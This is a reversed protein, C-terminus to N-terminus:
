ESSRGSTTASACLSERRRRLPQGSDSRCIESANASAPCTLTLPDANVAVDTFRISACHRRHPGAGHGSTGKGNPAPGKIARAPRAPERRAEIEQYDGYRMRASSMGSFLTGCRLLLVSLPLQVFHCLRDCSGSVVAVHNNLQAVFVPQRHLTVREVNTHLVTVTVVNCPTYRRQKTAPGYGAEVLGSPDHNLWYALADGAGGHGEQRDGRNEIGQDPLIRLPQDLSSSNVRVKGAGIGELALTVKEAAPHVLDVSM